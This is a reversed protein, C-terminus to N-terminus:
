SVLFLKFSLSQSTLMKLKSWIFCMQWGFGALLDGTQLKQNISMERFFCDRNLFLLENTPMSCKRIFM